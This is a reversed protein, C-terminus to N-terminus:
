DKKLKQSGWFSAAKSLYWEQLILKKWLLRLIKQFLDFKYIFWSNLFRFIGVKSGKIFQKSTNYNGDHLSCRSWIISDRLLTRFIKDYISCRSWIITGPLLTRFIKIMFPVNPHFSSVVCSCSDLNLLNSGRRLDALLLNWNIPGKFWLVNFTILCPFNIAIAYVRCQMM